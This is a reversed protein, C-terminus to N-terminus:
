RRILSRLRIVEDKDTRVMRVFDRGDVAAEVTNDDIVRIQAWSGNNGDIRELRVPADVRGNPFVFVGERTTERWDVSRNRLAPSIFSTSAWDVAQGGQGQVNVAFAATAHVVSEGLSDRVPEESKWFGIIVALPNVIGATAAAYEEPTARRYDYVESDYTGYSMRIRADDICSLTAMIAEVPRPRSLVLGAVGHRVVHMPEKRRDRVLYDAGIEMAAFGDSDPSDLLWHGTYDELRPNNIRDLEEPTSRVYERGADFMGKSVKLRGDEQLSATLLQRGTADALVLGRPTLSVVAEASDGNDNVGGEDLELFALPQDLGRGETERWFGFFGDRYRKKAAILADAEERSARVFDGVGRIFDCQLSGDDHLALGGVARGQANKFVYAGRASEFAGPMDEGDVVVGEETIELVPFLGPGVDEKEARWVGAIRGLPPHLVEEMETASSRVLNMKGGLPGSFALEISNEDTLTVVAVVEETGARRMSVKDDRDDLAIDLTMESNGGLRLRDAAIEVFGYTYGQKDTTRWVGVVKESNKKGCGSALVLCFCAMALWTTRLMAMGEWFVLCLRHGRSMIGTKEPKKLTKKVPRYLPSCTNGDSLRREHAVAPM